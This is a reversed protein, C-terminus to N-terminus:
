APAYEALAICHLVRGCQATGVDGMCTDTVEIRVEGRRLASLLPETLDYSGHKCRPEGCPIAFVSPAHEIAIRKIHSVEIQGSGRSENLELRMSVLRPVVTRLRQSEDERRRRETVDETLKTRRNM